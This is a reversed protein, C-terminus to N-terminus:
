QIRLTRITETRLPEIDNNPARKFDFFKKYENIIKQFNFIIESQESSFRGARLRGLVNDYDRIGSDFYGEMAKISNQLENLTGAAMFREKFLNRFEEPTQLAQLMINCLNVARDKEKELNDFDKCIEIWGRSLSTDTSRSFFNKVNDDIRFKSINELENKYSKILSEWKESLDKIEKDETERREGLEERDRSEQESTPPRGSSWARQVGRGAEAAAGAFEVHPIVGWHLSRGILGIFLMISAVAISWPFFSLMFLNIMPMTYLAVGFALVAGARDTNHGYRRDNFIPLVGIFAWTIAFTSIFPIFLTFVLTFPEKLKDQTFLNKYYNFAYSPDIVAGFGGSQFSAAIIGIVMMVIFAIILIGAGWNAGKRGFRM